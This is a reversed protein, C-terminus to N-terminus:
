YLFSSSRAVSLKPCAVVILQPWLNSKGWYSPRTVSVVLKPGPGGESPEPPSLPRLDTSYQGDWRGVQDGVLVAYQPYRLASQPPSRLQPRIGGGPLGCDVIWLGCDLGCEALRLGCHCTDGIRRSRRSIWPKLDNESRESSAKSLPTVAITPGFPQPLLLTASAIVHTIPSCLALLRRPSLISSTIKLPLSARLGVADASTRSRKLPKRLVTEPGANGSNPLPCPFPFPLPFPLPWWVSACWPLPLPWSSVALSIM